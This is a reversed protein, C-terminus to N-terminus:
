LNNMTRYKLNTVKYGSILDVGNLSNSKYNMQPVRILGINEESDRWDFLGKSQTKQPNLIKIRVNNSKKKNKGPSIEKLTKYIDKEEESDDDVERIDDMSIRATSQLKSATTTNINSLSNIQTKIEKFLESYHLIRKDSDKNLDELVKIKQGKTLPQYSVIDTRAYQKKTARSQQIIKNIEDEDLNELNHQRTETINGVDKKTLRNNRSQTTKVRSLVPDVTDYITKSFNYTKRSKM